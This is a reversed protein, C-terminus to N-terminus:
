QSNPTNASFSATFQSIDVMLARKKKTDNWLLADLPQSGSAEPLCLAFFRLFFQQMCCSLISIHSPPAATAQMSARYGSCHFIKM